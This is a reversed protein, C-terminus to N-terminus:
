NSNVHGKCNGSDEFQGVRVKVLSTPEGKASNAGGDSEPEESVDEKEKGKEKVNSQKSRAMAKKARFVEHAEIM